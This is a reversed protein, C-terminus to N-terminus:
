NQSENRKQGQRSAAVVCGRRCVWAPRYPRNCNFLRFAPRWDRKGATDLGLIFDGQSEPDGSAHDFAGDIEAATNFCALEDAPQFRLIFHIGKAGRTGSYGGSAGSQGFRAIV